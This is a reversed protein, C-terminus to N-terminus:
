FQRPCTNFMDLYTDFFKSTKPPSVKRLKNDCKPSSIIKTMLISWLLFIVNSKSSPSRSSFSGAMYRNELSEKWQALYIRGLGRGDPHVVYIRFAEADDPNHMYSFFAKLKGDPSWSPTTDIWPGETLRHVGGGEEAERNVADVIYLLVAHSM